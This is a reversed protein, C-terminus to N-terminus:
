EHRGDLRMMGGEVLVVPVQNIGDEGQKSQQTEQQINIVVLITGFYNAMALIQQLLFFLKKEFKLQVSKIFKPRVPWKQCIQTWRCEM